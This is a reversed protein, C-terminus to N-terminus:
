HALYILQDHLQRHYNTKCSSARFNRRTDVEKPFIRPLEPINMADLSAPFSPIKRHGQMLSDRTYVDIIGHSTSTHLSFSLAFASLPFQARESKRVHCNNKKDKKNRNFKLYVARDQDMMQDVGSAFHLGM